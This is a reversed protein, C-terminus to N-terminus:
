RVGSKISQALRLIFPCCVFFIHKWEKKIAPYKNRYKRWITIADKTIKREIKKKDEFHDTKDMRDEYSGFYLALARECMKVYGISDYFSIQEEMAWLFDFYKTSIKGKTTGDPNMQYFYLTEPVEAITCANYIWRCVVANDEYYKSPTFLNQM